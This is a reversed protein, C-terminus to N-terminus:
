RAVFAVGVTQYPRGAAREREVMSAYIGRMKMLEATPILATSRGNISFSEVANTARAELAAEVLALTTEAHTRGGASTALDGVVNLTGSDIQFRDSGSTVYAAWRYHGATLAATTAASVRVQHTTGSTAIHTSTLDLESPGRLAYTLTWGDAIPFDSHETRDWEWSDGAILQTPETTPITRAM